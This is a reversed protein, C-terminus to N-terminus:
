SEQEPPRVIRRLDRSGHVIPVVYCKKGRIEYIVRYSRVLIERLTDIEFEPVMWGRRPSRGLQKPAERLERNVKKAYNKSDRAIFATIERLDEFAPETWIVRAM